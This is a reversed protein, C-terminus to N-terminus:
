EAPAMAPARKSGNILLSIGLGIVFCITNGIVAWLLFNVGTRMMVALAIYAAAFGALAAYKDIRMPLLALALLGLMGNTSIGMAKGWLIQVYEAKIFVLAVLITVVGWILTLARALVLDERDSRERKSFRKVFDEVCITSASNMSSDISSMSAAFFAAVVLGALGAPLTHVIFFPYIQDAKAPLEAVPFENYYVFLATGIFYFLLGLPIYGVTAIWVSRNARATSDTTMYRQAIDQQTGYIRITQFVTELILWLTCIEKLKLEPILLRFKHNEAAVAFLHGPPIDQLIYFLTLLAGFVFIGVQVADTWIVAEIGGMVTYAAIIIGMVVIVGVLPLGTATHLALSTLYLIISMRAMSMVIFSISGILRVSVHIRRELFEYISIVGADRYAPLVLRTIVAATLVLFPLQVVYTWDHIGYSMAPLGLMTLASLYTGLISIGVLVFNMRGDAIFFSRTTQIRRSCWWGIGLMAILYLALVAYNTVGFRGM